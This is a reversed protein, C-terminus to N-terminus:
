KLVHVTNKGFQFYGARMGSRGAFLLLGTKPQLLFQYFVILAFKQETADVSNYVKTGTHSAGSHVLLTVGRPYSCCDRTVRSVQRLTNFPM